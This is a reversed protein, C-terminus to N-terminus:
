TCQPLLSFDVSPPVQPKGEETYPMMGRLERWGLRGDIAITDSGVNKHSYLFVPPVDQFGYRRCPPTFFPWNMPNAEM